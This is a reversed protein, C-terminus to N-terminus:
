SWVSDAIRAYVKQLEDYISTVLRRLPDNLVTWVASLPWYTIWVLLTSRYATVNTKSAKWNGGYSKAKRVRKKEAFWWKIVSWVAGVAFYGAFYLLSLGLNHTIFTYPKFASFYQLVGLVLLVSITAGTGWIHDDDSICFLVYILDALLLLSVWLPFTFLFLM